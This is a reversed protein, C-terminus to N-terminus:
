GPKRKKGGGGPAAPLLADLEGELRALADLLEGIRRLSYRVRTDWLRGCTEDLVEGFSEEPSIVTGQKIM